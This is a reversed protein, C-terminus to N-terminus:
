RSFKYGYKEMLMLLCDSSLIEIFGVSVDGSNRLWGHLKEGSVLTSGKEETKANVDGM